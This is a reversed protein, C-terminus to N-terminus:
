FNWIKQANEEERACEGIIKRALNPGLFQLRCQFKTLSFNGNGPRLKSAGLGGGLNGRARRFACSLNELRVRNLIKDTKLKLIQDIM